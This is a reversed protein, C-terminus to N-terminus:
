AGAPPKFRSRRSGHATRSPPPAPLACPVAGHGPRFRREGPSPEPSSGGGGHPERGQEETPVAPLPPGPGAPASCRGSGCERDTRLRRGARRGPARRRRSPHTPQQGGEVDRPSKGRPADRGPRVRGAPRPRAAPGDSGPPTRPAPRPSVASPCPAHRPVSASLASFTRACASAAGQHCTDGDLPTGTALTLPLTNTHTISASM